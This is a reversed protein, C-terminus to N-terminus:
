RTRPPDLRALSALLEPLTAGRRPGPVIISVRATRDDVRAGDRPLRRLGSCCTRARGAPWRGRVALAVPSVAGVAVRAVTALKRWTPVRARVAFVDYGAAEIRDLIGSYLVRAARVCPASSPPLLAIGIDASRYLERCREIEFRMLTAGRTTSSAGTRSRRRLARPGGPAHVGPGRDLDEAVDRLFNTLQFAFGLDRAHAFADPSLPELIPLMMEGIVAASGDMYGLLDDWTDYRDVTLDMAM